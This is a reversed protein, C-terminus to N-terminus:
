VEEAWTNSFTHVLAHRIGDETINGLTRAADGFVDDEDAYDNNAWYEIGLSAVEALADVQQETFPTGPQLDLAVRARALKVETLEDAAGDEIIPGATLVAWSLARQFSMM